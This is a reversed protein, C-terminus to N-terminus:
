EDIPGGAARQYNGSSGAPLGTLGSTRVTSTDLEDMSVSPMVGSEATESQEGAGFGSNQLEKILNGMLKTFEKNAAYKKMVKQAGQSKQMAALLHMPSDKMGQSMDIGSENRLDRLYAMFIPTNFYKKFIEKARETKAPDPDYASETEDGSDLTESSVLGISDGTPKQDPFNDLNEKQSLSPEHPASLVTSVATVSTSDRLAYVAAAAVMVALAAIWLFKRKKGTNGAPERSEEEKCSKKGAMYEAEPDTKKIEGDNM